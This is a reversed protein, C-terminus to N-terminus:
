PSVLISKPNIIIWWIEPRIEASGPGWSRLTKDIEKKKLNLKLTMKRSVKWQSKKKNNGENEQIGVTLNWNIPERAKLIQDEAPKEM